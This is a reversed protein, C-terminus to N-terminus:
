SRYTGAPTRKSRKRNRPRTRERSATTSKPKARGFNCKKFVALRKPFRSFPMRKAGPCFGVVGIAPVPGPRKPMRLRLRERRTM